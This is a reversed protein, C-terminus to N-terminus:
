GGGSRVGHPHSTKHPNPTPTPHTTTRVTPTPTPHVAPASSTTAPTRTPRPIPSVRQSTPVGARQPEGPGGGTAATADSATPEASPTASPVAAVERLVPGLDPATPGPVLRGVSPLSLPVLNPGGFLSVVVAVLYAVVVTGAAWGVARVARHRRGSDDVFIPASTDSMECYPDAPLAGTALAAGLSTLRIDPKGYDTRAM